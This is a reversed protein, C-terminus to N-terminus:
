RKASNGASVKYTLQKAHFYQSTELDEKGGNRKVVRGYTLVSGRESETM